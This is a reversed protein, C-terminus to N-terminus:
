PTEATGGSPPQDGGGDVSWPGTYGLVFGVIENADRLYRREGEPVHEVSGRWPAPVGALERSERWVRVIFAHTDGHGM